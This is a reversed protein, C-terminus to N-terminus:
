WYSRRAKKAPRKQARRKKAAPRKAPKPRRASAKRPSKKPSKKPSRKAVKKPGGRARKAPKKASGKKPSRRAPKKAPSKKPSKKAAPRKAKAPSKKKKPTAKRATRPKKKAKAIKFSGSAGTGRTRSLSGSTVLKTIASNIRKNSKTVDVGNRALLKKLAALSVGKREKSDAVADVILKSISPGDKKTRSTSKKMSIKASTKVAAPAIETM